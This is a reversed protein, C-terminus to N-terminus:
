RRLEMVSLSGGTPFQCLWGPPLANTVVRMEYTYTGAPMSFLRGLMMTGFVGDSEATAGTQRMRTLYPYSWAMMKVGGIYLRMESITAVGALSECRFTFPAEFLIYIPGGTGTHSVSIISTEAITGLTGGAFAAGVMNSTAGNLIKLRTVADDLIKSEIVSGAVLHNAVIENAIIRNGRLTDVDIQSGSMVGGFRINGADITFPAGGTEVVFQGTQILVRSAGSSLVQLRLGSSVYGSGSTASVQVAFEAAVGGSSPAVAVLRYYGSATADGSRVDARTIRAAVAGNPGTSVYNADTLAAYLGTPDTGNLSAEITNLRGGVAGFKDARTYNTDVIWARIGDNTPNGNADVGVTSELRQTRVLTAADANQIDTQLKSIIGAATRDLISFDPNDIARTIDRPTVGLAQGFTVPTMARGYGNARQGQLLEVAEKLARLTAAQGEPTNGPDPISPPRYMAGAVPQPTYDIADDFEESM